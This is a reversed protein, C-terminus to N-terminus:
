QTPPTRTAPETTPMTRPGIEADDPNLERLWAALDPTLNHVLLRGDPRLLMESTATAATSHPQRQRRHKM